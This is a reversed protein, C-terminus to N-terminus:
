DYSFPIVKRITQNDICRTRQTKRNDSTVELFSLNHITHGLLRPAHSATSSPSIFYFWLFLSDFYWHPHPPFFLSGPPSSSLFSFPAPSTITSSCSAPFGLPLSYHILIIFLSHTFIKSNSFSTALGLWLILPNGLAYINSIKDGLYKVYYWVPRVDFLWELLLNTPPPNSFPHPLVM